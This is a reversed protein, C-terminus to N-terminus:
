IFRYRYSECFSIKLCWSQDQGNHVSFIPGYKASAFFKEQASQFPAKVCHAMGDFDFLWITSTRLVHRMALRVDADREVPWDVENKHRM